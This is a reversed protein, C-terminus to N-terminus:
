VVRGSEGEGWSGQWCCKYCVTVAGSREASGLRGGEGGSTGDTGAVGGKWHMGARRRGFGWFKLGFLGEGPGQGPVLAPNAFCLPHPAQANQHSPTHSRPPSQLVAVANCHANCVACPVSHQDLLLIEDLKALCCLGPLLDYGIGEVWGVCVCTGGYGRVWVQTANVSCGCGCCWWGWCAGHGQGCKCWLRHGWGCLGHCVCM